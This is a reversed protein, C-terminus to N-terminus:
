GRNTQRRADSELFMESIASSSKKLHHGTLEPALRSLSQLHYVRSSLCPGQFGRTPLPFITKWPVLCDPDINTKPLLSHPACCSQGRSDKSSRSSRRTSQNTTPGGNQPFRIRWVTTPEPSRYIAQESNLCWRHYTHYPNQYVM